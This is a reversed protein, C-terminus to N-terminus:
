EKDNACSFKLFMRKLNVESNQVTRVCGCCPMSKERFRVYSKATKGTFPHQIDSFDPAEASCSAIKLPFRIKAAFIQPDRRM